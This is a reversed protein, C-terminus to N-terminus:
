VLKGGTRMLGKSIDPSAWTNEDRSPALAL